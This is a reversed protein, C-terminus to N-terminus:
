ALVFQSVRFCGEWVRFCISHGRDSPRGKRQPASDGRGAEPGTISKPTPGRGHSRACSCCWNALNSWFFQEGGTTMQMDNGIVSASASFDPRGRLGQGRLSVQARRRSQASPGSSFNETFWLNPNRLPAKFRVRIKGVRQKLYM